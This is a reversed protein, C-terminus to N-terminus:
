MYRVRAFNLGGKEAIVKHLFRCITSVDIEVLLTSALEKQLERLLVGPKELLLHLLLLQVASTVKRYARDKPYSKKSFSGTTVFKSCTRSVTSKDVGLNKAVQEVTLGVGERQWM